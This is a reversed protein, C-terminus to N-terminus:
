SAFATTIAKWTQKNTKAAELQEAYAKASELDDFAGLSSIEDRPDNAVQRTSFLEYKEYIKEIAYCFDCMDSLSGRYGTEDEKWSIKTENPM